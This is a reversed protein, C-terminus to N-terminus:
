VFVMKEWKGKECVWHPGQGFLVGLHFITSQLKNTNPIAVEVAKIGLSEFDITGLEFM